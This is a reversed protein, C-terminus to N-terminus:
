WKESVKKWYDSGLFLGIDARGSDFEEESFSADFIRQLIKVSYSSALKKSSKIITEKNDKANDINVVRGGLNIIFRSAQAGLGFVQTSNFVAFTLDEEIIKKDKFKNAIFLDIKQFDFDDKGDLNTSDPFDLKKENAKSINKVKLWLYILDFFSFNSKSPKPINEIVAENVTTRGSHIIGFIPLAFAEQISEALLENGKGELEGLKYIKGIEYEGFGRIVKIKKNLPLDLTILKDRDLCVLRLSKESNILFIIREFNKIKSKKFSSFFRLLSFSFILFLIFALFFFVIRKQKEFKKGNEIKKWKPLMTVKTNAPKLGRRDM